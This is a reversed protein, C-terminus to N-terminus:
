QDTVSSSSSREEATAVFLLDFMRDALRDHLAAIQAPETM